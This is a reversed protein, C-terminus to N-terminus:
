QKLSPDNRKGKKFWYLIALIVKGVFYLSKNYGTYLFKEEMSRDKFIYVEQKSKPFILKINKHGSATLLCLNLSVFCAMFHLVFVSVSVKIM